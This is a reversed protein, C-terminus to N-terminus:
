RTRRAPQPAPAPAPAAPPPSGASRPNVSLYANIFQDVLESVKDRLPSFNAREVMGLASVEWTSAVKTMEGTELYAKQYLAVEAHSPACESPDMLVQVRVYVFPQGMMNLREVPTLVRIGAQRLRLEVDTQLQKRTLGAREVEPAPEVILVAVGLLGRLSDRAAQSDDAWSPPVLMGLLAVLVIGARHICVRCPCAHTLPQYIRSTLNRVSCLQPM